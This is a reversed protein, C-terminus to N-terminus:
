RDAGRRAVVAPGSREAGEEGPSVAGAEIVRRAMDGLARTTCLPEGTLALWERHDSVTWAGGRFFLLVAKAFRIPLPESSVEVKLDDPPATPGVRISLPERM